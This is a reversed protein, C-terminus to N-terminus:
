TGDPFPESASLEIDQRVSLAKHTDLCNVIESFDGLDDVVEIALCSACATLSACALEEAGREGRM